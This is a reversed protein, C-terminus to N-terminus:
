MISDIGPRAPAAPNFTGLPDELLHLALPGRRLGPL